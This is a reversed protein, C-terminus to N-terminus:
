FEDFLSQSQYSCPDPTDVFGFAFSQHPSYHQLKRTDPDTPLEKVGAIYGELYTPDNYEPLQGFAADTKGDLFRDYLEQQVRENSEDRAEALCDDIFAM